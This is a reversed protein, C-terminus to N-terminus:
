VIDRPATKLAVYFWRYKGAALYAVVAVLILQVVCIWGLFYWVVAALAALVALITLMVAIRRLLVRLPRTRVSKRRTDTTTKEGAAGLHSVDGGSELDVDVAREM